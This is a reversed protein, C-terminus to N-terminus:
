TTSKKCLPTTTNGQTNCVSNSVEELALVETNQQGPIPNWHEGTIFLRNQSRLLNFGHSQITRHLNDLNDMRLLQDRNGSSVM